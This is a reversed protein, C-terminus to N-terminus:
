VRKQLITRLSLIEKHPLLCPQEIPICSIVKKNALLAVVLAVSQCGVVLDAHMIDVLLSPERSLLLFQPYQALLADYKGDKDSPHPRIVLQSIDCELVQLNELLYKLADFETYGFYNIDAYKLLAHDSINESVFLLIREDCSKEMSSQSLEKLEAAVDILYPNEVIKIVTHVFAARAIQEAYLDGVWIEDPLHQVGNRIFRDPYNVWHDIFSVVRKGLLQAQKIVQWEIDSQWSTGCLCWDAALLGADVTTLEIVGLKRQFVNLAPGELVFLCNLQHQKVYSALIEAGGADHAVLLCLGHDINM